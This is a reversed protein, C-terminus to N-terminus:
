QQLQTRVFKSKQKIKTYPGEVSPNGVLASILNHVDGESDERDSSCFSLSSESITRSLNQSSQESSLSENSANLGNEESHSDDNFTVEHEEDQADSSDEVQFEKEGTPM